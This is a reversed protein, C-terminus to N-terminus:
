NGLDSFYIINVLYTGIIGYGNGSVFYNFLNLNINYFISCLYELFYEVLKRRPFAFVVKFITEM